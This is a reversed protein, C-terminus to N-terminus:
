NLIDMFGWRFNASSMKQILVKFYFRSTRHSDAVPLPDVHIHM